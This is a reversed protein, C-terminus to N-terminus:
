EIVKLQDRFKVKCTIMNWRCKLDPMSLSFTLFVSLGLVVLRNFKPFVSIEICQGRTCNAYQYIEHLFYENNMIRTRNLYNM